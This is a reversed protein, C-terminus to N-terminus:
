SNKNHNPINVIRKFEVGKSTFNVLMGLQIGTIKLYSNLQSINQNQFKNGKKLEIVIKEEVVIDLIGKAINKDGIILDVFVQEKFPINNKELLATIAKQYYREQFGFGMTKYVEYFIGVLQYSLEPYLLDEKHVKPM